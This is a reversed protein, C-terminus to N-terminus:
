PEIDAGPGEYGACMGDTMDFYEKADPFAELVRTHYEKVKDPVAAWFNKRCKLFTLVPAISLDAITPKDSYVFDTDKLYVNMLTPFLDNVLKGFQKKADEEDTPYGFVGYAINPFAPYLGTQRWDMVMDIKGRLIPDSSPYLDDGGTNNVCLFRMIACSEWIAGDSGDLELTPCTHCPNIALFEPTRTKGASNVIEVANDVDLKLHKVVALPGQSNPASTIYPLITTSTKTPVNTIAPYHNRSSYYIPIHHLDIIIADYKCM